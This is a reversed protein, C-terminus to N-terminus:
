SFTVAGASAVGGPGSAGATMPGSSVVHGGTWRGGPRPQIPMPPLPHSSSCRRAPNAVLRAAAASSWSRRCHRVAAHTSRQSYETM